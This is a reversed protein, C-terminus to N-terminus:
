LDWATLHWWYVDGGDAVYTGFFTALVVHLLLGFLFGWAILQHLLRWYGLGPTVSSRTGM